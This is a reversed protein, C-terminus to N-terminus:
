AVCPAIANVGYALNLHNDIFWVTLMVSICNGYVESGLGFICRGVLIINFNNYAGGIAFIFSGVLLTIFCVGIVIRTGYKDIMPGAFIPLVMNPLSYVSYM